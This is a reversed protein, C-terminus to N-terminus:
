YVASYALFNVNARRPVHIPTALDHIQLQDLVIDEVMGPGTVVERGERPAEEVPEVVVEGVAGIIGLVMLQVLIINAAEQIRVEDAAHIEEMDLTIAAELDKKREEAAHDAVVAGAVGIAGPGMLQALVFLVPIRRHVKVAANGAMIDQHTAPEQELELAEGM